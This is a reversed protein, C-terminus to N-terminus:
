FQFVNFSDITWKGNEKKLTGEISLNEFSDFLTFTATSESIELPSFDLVREKINSSDQKDIYQYNINSLKLDENVYENKIIYITKGNTLQLNLFKNVRESKLITEIILGKKSQQANCSAISLLILFAGTLVTKIDIRM